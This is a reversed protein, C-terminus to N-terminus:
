LKMLRIQQSHTFKVLEKLHILIPFRKDVPKEIKLNKINLYNQNVKLSKIKYFFSLPKILPIIMDNM